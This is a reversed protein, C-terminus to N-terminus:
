ESKFATSPAVGAARRAPIYTAILAIATLLAAVATFTLPDSASVGFLFSSLVRGLALAAVLGIGLGIATLNLVNRLVMWILNGRDAGLAIRVGIEQVRQSVSQAMVGYIGVTTLLLAIAAFVTLLTMSLRPKAISSSLVEEMPRVWAIAQDPAVAWVARRADRTAAEPDTDTRMVFTMFFWPDQAFPAYIQPAPSSNLGLRRVDAVVGVIMWWPGEAGDFSLRQGIPDAAPWYRDAMAKSIVLVKPARADDTETLGRGHLLRMGIAQFYGPTVADYDATVDEGPRAARGEFTVPMSLRSTTLPVNTVLGAARVTPIQHLREIVQQSFAAAATHPTEQPLVVRMALCRDSQFGPDVALLRRFSQVLLGAGILLVLALSIESVLLASRLRRRGTGGTARGSGEKLLSQLDTRSAQLAPLLGFAIGSALSVLLTFALVRSDMRTQSLRPIDGLDLVALLRTGWVALLVGCGGGILSLFVAGALRERVLRGPTAGVASRIAAERQRSVARALELHTVNACVLLLLFGVAGFLMWLTPRLDGVLWEQLPIARFSRGRNTTPYQRELRGALIDLQSQARELDVGPRLRALVHVFSKGRNALDEPSFVLPLWLEEEDISEFDAPMVGVITRKEGNIVITRGIVARDSAFRRGWLGHGLVVSDHGPRDEGALFGRGLLPQRGLLRFWDATVFLGPLREPEGSGTLSVSTSTYAAMGAFSAGSSSLDVFDAASLNEAGERNATQRLVVLQDPTEYAPQRLLVAELVSFMTTVAGTGLALTFIATLTLVPSRRLLRSAVRLDNIIGQM